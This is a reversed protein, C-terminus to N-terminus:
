LFSKFKYLSPFFTQRKYDAAEQRKLSLFFTKGECGTERHPPGQGEQRHGERRCAHHSPHRARAARFRCSHTQVHPPATGERHSRMHAATRGVSAELNM